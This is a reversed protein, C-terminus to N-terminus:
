TIGCQSGIRELVSSSAESPSLPSGVGKINDPVVQPNHWHNKLFNKMTVGLYRRFSSEEKHKVFMESSLVLM